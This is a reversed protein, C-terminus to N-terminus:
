PAAPSRDALAARLDAFWRDLERHVGESQVVHLTEDGKGPAITATGGVDEWTEPAFTAQIAQSLVAIGGEPLLDKVLYTRPRLRAGASAATRVTIKGEDTTWALGADSQNLALSLASALPVEQAL